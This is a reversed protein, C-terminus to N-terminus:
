GDQYGALWRLLSLVFEPNDAGQASNFGLTRGANGIQASFASAETFLALRGMGTELVAGQAMGSADMKPAGARAQASRSAFIASFGQPVTLLTTAGSAPIFSQGGFTFFHEVAGRGMEGNTIAHDGNLGRERSFDIEMRLVGADAAVTEATFGNLYQFGFADALASTGSGLPAHDALILLGGGAEVWAKAAAIEEPSFASPPEMISFEGTPRRFSNIIIAVKADSQALGTLEGTLETTRFGDSRALAELPEHSGNAIFTSDREIFAILPGEDQAYAPANNDYRYERDPIQGRQALAQLPFVAGIFFVLLAALVHM